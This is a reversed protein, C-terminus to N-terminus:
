RRPPVTELVKKRLPAMRDQYEGWEKYGRREMRDFFDRAREPDRAFLRSAYKWALRYFHEDRRDGILRCALDISEDLLRNRDEGRPLKAAQAAAIDGQLEIAGGHLTDDRRIEEVIRRADDLRGCGFASVARRYEVPLREEPRLGEGLLYQGYLDFALAHGEATEETALADAAALLKEGQLPKFRIGSLRVVVRAYPGWLKRDGTKAIAQEYALALRELAREVPWLAVSEKMLALTEHAEKFRGLRGLADVRHARRWEGTVPDNPTFRDTLKLTEEAKGLALLSWCALDLASDSARPTRTELGLYLTFAEAAPGYEKLKFRCLGLSHVAEPYGEQGPAIRTYLGAAERYKGEEALGDALLRVVTPGAQDLDIEKAMWERHAGLRARLADTPETEALKRLVKLLRVAAETRQPGPAAGAQRLAEAAEHLRGVNQYCLGLRLWTQPTKGARGYYSIAETFHHRQFLRDAYRTTDDDKKFLNALLGLARFESDSKEHRAALDRLSRESEAARGAAHMARATEIRLSLFTEDERDKPLLKLDNRLRELATDVGHGHAVRARLEQAWSRVAVEVVQPDKRLDPRELRRAQALNQFCAGWEELAQHARALLLRAQLAALYDDYKWIFATLFQVTKKWLDREKREEALRFLAAGHEWDLDLLSQEWKDLEPGPKAPRSKELQAAQERYVRELDQLSQAPSQAACEALLFIWLM